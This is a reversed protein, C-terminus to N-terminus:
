SQAYKSSNIIHKSTKQPKPIFIHEINKKEELIINHPQTHSVALFLKPTNPSSRLNHSLIWLQKIVFM